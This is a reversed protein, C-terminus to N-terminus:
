FLKKLGDTINTGGGFWEMPQFLTASNLQGIIEINQFRWLDM